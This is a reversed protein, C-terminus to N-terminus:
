FTFTFPDAGNRRNRDLAAIVSMDAADLEFDFIDANEAIRAPHVSKPITVVGLQLDWRLIVQAVTKQHKRAIGALVPDRLLPGAQMLPSWATLRIDRQRCFEHLPKSQLYPHFEIQNVVPPVEAATLLEELHPIMYNSVGIAKALGARYLQEMARWAEAHRGKIPWHLLYLDVYDLGLRKLSEACAAEVRGARIDDNWAKTTVFIERRPIGSERVARGVGRENRYLAATDIHRYGIDLAARVADAADNDAPVQFVGLGLWPLRVGNSLTTTAKLGSSTTPFTGLLVPFTM